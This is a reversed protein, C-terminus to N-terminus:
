NHLAGKAWGKTRSGNLEAFAAGACVVLVPDIFPIRSREQPFFALAALLSTAPLLWLGPLRERRSGLRAFGVLAVPLVILYSLVSAGSYLRSHLQYSPGIPVVFYVLKRMELLAWDLPHTRMWGLAERYYIREMQQESLDPHRAHLAQRDQGIQPNAAMDGEGTALPHNGTWFTLGGESAVLVLRGEHQYNRVTWPAIVLLAGLAFVGAAALLRRWLLWLTAALM